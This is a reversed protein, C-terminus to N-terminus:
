KQTIKFNLFYILAITLIFGCTVGSMYISFPSKRSAREEIVSEHYNELADRANHYLAEYYEVQRQLSDCTGTIYIIGDHHTAEVHARDKNERYAAGEPLKLLSDVSIAMHVQSEPVMQTTIVRTVAATTDSKASTSSIQEQQTQTKQTTACSSFCLAITLMVVVPLLRSLRAYDLWKERPLPGRRKPPRCIQEHPM